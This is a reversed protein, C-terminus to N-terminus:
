SEASSTPAAKEAGAAELLRRAVEQVRSLADKLGHPTLRSALKAAQAHDLLFPIDTALTRVSWECAQEVSDCPIPVHPLDLYSFGYHFHPTVRFCDFRLVEREVNASDFVHITLGGNDGFERWALGFSLPGAAILELGDANVSNPIYKADM